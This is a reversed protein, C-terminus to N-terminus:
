NERKFVWCKVTKPSTDGARMFLTSHVARLDIFKRTKSARLLRKLDTLPPVQQKADAAVQAFHNLNVAIVGPDRSHNLQPAGDSGNLYDFADWFEAVLPHDAAIAQQREVAMERVLQQAAQHQEASLHVLDALADLLALLQAHNKAIRLSKLGTLSQLEREYVPTQQVVIDLITAAHLAAAVGFGSVRELPLRELAEARAKTDTTHAARDFHLHVIRQLIAESANVPANQSIVIAGRFPPEYTENGSNRLGRARVSRGNYATKLEDWDFRKSKATDEDRDAEILVVPLNAVQAFNRARAALTSKSPDFGEYDRRGLLKWLFEILTSKGAGPEGVIELFPFSKHQARIQEAILSGLWYAAALLGKAGFCAWVHGTWGPDYEDLRRNLHLHVSQSLSKVSLRGLDFFDENNIEHIQGDKVAFDNFVYCGHEAAYGIFDITSVTKIQFLQERLLRDLQTSSGTWVAGPAIALLRKKFESASALQGGTFTNKVPAGDHPFDVQVYYWSEDTLANAQYYLARPVCNAIEVIGGAEALARERIQQETLGTDGDRLAQQAKEYRDLDLRFWFLRGAFDFPFDRRETHQYILLGKETASQAILLAGHYRYTDLDTPALRDRQHLDNWDLKGGRDPQPIQAARCEWGAQRAREVWKRTFRRGAADGDLAWILVPRPGTQAALASLALEPYNNCSLLAVAPVNHHALAIADFIGEVLWLEPLQVPLGPPQWWTGKYTSGPKFRAKKEFREPRDILREWYGGAIPFRVTATGIRKDPDYYSAQEYPGCLALDTFGRGLKLYAEAAAQPAAETTKFRDSWSAFADPYLDKVHGEWGCKSLRNCRVVWPADARVFLERKGCQPCTGEILWAAGPKAKLGYDAQLRASIDRLLDPNMSATM